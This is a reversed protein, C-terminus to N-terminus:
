KEALGHLTDRLIAAWENPMDAFSAHHGPFIVMQCGLRQALIPATEAYFRKKDLSKKGAAMFIKVKNRRIMAVDPWYNTIPLLEQKLFFDIVKKQDLYRDHSKKRTRRATRVARFAELFSFDIGIGFAFKMMAAAAGFRFAARYVGRFFRQWKEARPHVRALPPEHAVIARLAQAQTKAMDLAIVAGSSNGFVFASTEGAARLIAVADRSQQCVDFTQPHNMTSRSNARRDYTIVKFEDSLIDAVSSYAGGDGGGGAIMLLPQGLGRVEYYLEDGETTVRHSKMKGRHNGPQNKDKITLGCLTSKMTRILLASGTGQLCKAVIFTIDDLQEGPSFGRVNKLRAQILAQPPL